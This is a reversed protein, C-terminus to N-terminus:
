LSNWGHAIGDATVDADVSVAAAGGREAILGEAVVVVTSVAVVVVGDGGFAGWGAELVRVTTEEFGGFDLVVGGDFTGELEVERREFVEVGDLEGEREEEGGDCLVADCGGAGTAEDVTELEGAFVGAAEKAARSGDLEDGFGGHVFEAVLQSGFVAVFQRGVDFGFVSFPSPFIGLGERVGCDAYLRGLIVVVRIDAVVVMSGLCRM